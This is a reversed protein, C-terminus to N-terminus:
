WHIEVGRRNRGCEAHVSAHIAANVLHADRPTFCNALLLMLNRWRHSDRCRDIKLRGSGTSGGDGAVENQEAGLYVGDKPRQGLAANPDGRDVAMHQALIRPEVEHMEPSVVVSHLQSAAEAGRQRSGRRLTSPYALRWSLPM